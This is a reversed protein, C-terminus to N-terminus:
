LKQGEKFALELGREIDACRYNLLSLIKSCNLSVDEPRPPNSPIDARRCSTILKPDYGFQGCVKTGFEVRSIREPGGCHYIGLPQSSALRIIIGCADGVYLPTRWEDSFLTVSRGESFASLMWDLGGKKEGIPAGYLLSLRLVCGKEYEFVLKEADRKTSAYVSRPLPEHDEAFGGPPAAAGDYVLDSSIYCLYAGQARAAALVSATFSVNVRHAETPHQECKEASAMAAAHIFVDPKFLEIQAECEEAIHADCFEEQFAAEKHFLPHSSRSLSLVDHRSQLLSRALFSGLYGTAGTLVFRM